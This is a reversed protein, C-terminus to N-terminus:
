PKRKNLLAEGRQRWPEGWRDYAYMVPAALFCALFLLMSGRALAVVALLAVFGYRRVERRHLHYFNRISSLAEM